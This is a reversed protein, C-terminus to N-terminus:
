KNQDYPQEQGRKKARWNLFERLAGKAEEQEMKDVIEKGHLISMMETRLDEAYREEAFQVFDKLETLEMDEAGPLVYRADFIRNM